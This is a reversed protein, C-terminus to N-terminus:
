CSHRSRNIAKFEPMGPIHVIWAFETRSRDGRHACVETLLDGADAHPGPGRGPRAGDGRRGGLRHAPDVDPVVIVKGGYLSTPDVKAWNAAGMPNTTAVAGLSELAHVDKEGEVIYVVDGAAVAATVKGLRYLEAAGSTNGSQHFRKTPTRHVVRGNDYKYTAGRPDDYLDAWGLDLAALV